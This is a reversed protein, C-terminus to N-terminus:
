NPEKEKSVQYILDKRFWRITNGNKELAKIRALCEYRVHGTYGYHSCLKYETLGIYKRKCDWKVPKNKYGLGTRARKYHENLWTLAEFSKNQKKMLAIDYNAQNPTVQLESSKKKEKCLEKKLSIIEAEHFGQDNIIIESSSTRGEKITKLEATLSLITKMLKNNEAKESSDNDSYTDSKDMLALNDNEGDEGESEEDSTEGWTAKM